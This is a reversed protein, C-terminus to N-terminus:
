RGVERWRQPRRVVFYLPAGVINGLLIVLIWVIKTNGTDPEKTACEVLMWLWFLLAAAVLGFFFL